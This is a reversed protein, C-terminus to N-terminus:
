RKRMSRRMAANFSAVNGSNRKSEKAEVIRRNNLRLLSKPHSHVRSLTRDFRIFDLKEVWMRMELDHQEPTLPAEDNLKADAVHDAYTDAHTTRSAAWARREDGIFAAAVGSNRGPKRNRSGM